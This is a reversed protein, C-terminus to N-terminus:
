RVNLAFVTAYAVLKFAIFDPYSQQETPPLPLTIGAFDADGSLVFFPKM